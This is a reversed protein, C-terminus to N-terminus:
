RSMVIQAVKGDVFGFMLSQKGYRAIHPGDPPAKDGPHAPDPKGYADHVQQVSSGIRIGKSTEGPFDRRTLSAADWPNAIILGLTENGEPGQLVFQLGMSPYNLYVKHLTFEPEGLIGVIQDRTMGFKVEGVGVGPKMILRAGEEASLAARLQDPTIGAVVYDPPIAMNFLSDDLMPDFEIRDVLVAGADAARFTLRVPLGNKPDSWVEADIKWEANPAIKVVAQGKAGPYRRGAADTHEAIPKSVIKSLDRFIAYFDLAQSIARRPLRYALKSSSQFMVELGSKSDAVVVVGDGEFRSRTGSVFLRGRQGDVDVLAKLTKTVKVREAAQAFASSTVGGRNALFLSVLALAAITSGAFKAARSRWLSTLVPRHIAPPALRNLYDPKAAVDISRMASVAAELRGSIGHEGNQKHTTM